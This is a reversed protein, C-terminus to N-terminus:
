HATRRAVLATRLRSVRTRLASSTSAHREALVEYEEGTSAGVLLNWDDDPLHDAIKRLERRAHVADDLSRAGSFIDGGDNGCAATADELAADQHLRLLSARHRVQRAANAALRAVTAESLQDATFGPLHVINLAEELAGAHVASRTESLQAQLHAYASWPHPIAAM